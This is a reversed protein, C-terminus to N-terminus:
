NTKLNTTPFTSLGGLDQRLSFVCNLTLELLLVTKKNFQILVNVFFDGRPVSHKYLSLDTQGYM